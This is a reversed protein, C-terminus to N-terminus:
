ANSTMRCILSASIIGMSLACILILSVNGCFSALCTKSFSLGL